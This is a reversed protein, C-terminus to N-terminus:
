LYVFWEKNGNEFVTAQSEMRMKKETNKAHHWLYM